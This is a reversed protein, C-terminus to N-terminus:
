RLLELVVQEAHLSQLAVDTIHVREDKNHCRRNVDESSDLLHPNFSYTVTDPFAARFWNSDTFALCHSSALESGPVLRRM